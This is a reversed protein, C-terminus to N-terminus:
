YRTDVRELAFGNSYSNSNTEDQKYIYLTHFSRNYLNYRALEFKNYVPDRVRKYFRNEFAKDQYSGYIYGENDIVMNSTFDVFKCIHKFNLANHVCKKDDCVTFAIGTKYDIYGINNCYNEVGSGAYEEKFIYYIRGGVNIFPANVDIFETDNIYDYFIYGSDYIPANPSFLMSLLNFSLVITVCAALIFLVKTGTKM